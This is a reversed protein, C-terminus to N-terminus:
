VMVGPIFKVTRYAQRRMHHAQTRRHMRARWNQRIGQFDLRFLMVDVPLLVRKTVPQSAQHERFFRRFEAHFDIHDGIHHADIREIEKQFLVRLFEREFVIFGQLFLQNRIQFHHFVALQKLFPQFAYIEFLRIGHHEEHRNIATQLPINTVVDAKLRPYLGTLFGQGFFGTRAAIRRPQQHLNQPM